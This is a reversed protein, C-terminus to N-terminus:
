NQPFKESLLHENAFRARNRNVKSLEKPEALCFNVSTKPAEGFWLLYNEDDYKNHICFADIWGQYGGSASSELVARITNPEGDRRSATKVQLRYTDGGVVAIIDIKSKGFPFFVDAGLNKLEKAVSLEGVDGQIDNRKM